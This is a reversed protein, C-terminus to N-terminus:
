LYKWDVEEEVIINILASLFHIIRVCIQKITKRQPTALYSGTNNTNQNTWKRSKEVITEM